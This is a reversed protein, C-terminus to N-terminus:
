SERDKPSLIYLLCDSYPDMFLGGKVFKQDISAVVTLM